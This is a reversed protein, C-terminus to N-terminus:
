QATKLPPWFAMNLKGKYTKHSIAGFSVMGNNTLWRSAFTSKDGEYGDAKVMQTLANEAVEAEGKSGYYSTLGVYKSQDIVTGTHDIEEIWIETFRINNVKIGKELTLSYGTYKGSTSITWGDPKGGFKENIAKQAEAIPKGKVNATFFEDLQDISFELGNSEPTKTVKKTTTVTEAKSSDETKALTGTDSVAVSSSVQSSSSTDDTSKGTLLFAATVGGIAIVGAAIAAIVKGSFTGGVM